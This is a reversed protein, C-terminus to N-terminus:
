NQRANWFVDGGSKKLFAVRFEEKEDATFGIDDDEVYEPRRKAHQQRSPLPTM